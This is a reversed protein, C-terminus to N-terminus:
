LETKHAQEAEEKNSYGLVDNRGGKEVSDWELPAVVEFLESQGLVSGDKALAQAFVTSEYGKSQFRTEFGTRKKSGILVSESIGDAPLRYFDWQNVETAGNWSVYYVTTSSDEDIGFAFAKLVPPDLPAGTFNMKYARYTVFRKSTFSAEMVMQGDSTHESLYSNDSWAAFVNGTPLYQFNGRLKSLKEDPRTWRHLVTAVKATKNLQIELRSSINSTQAYTDAGNDLLSITEIDDYCKSEIWRADHQRSFNFGQLEFDSKSGRLRSNPADGGLRWLISGNKSIKYITNSFRSSVLYEGESNKAVSNGHFWNWADPYPGFIHDPEATSETLSVDPYAWWEFNIHGSLIEKEVFGMNMIWGHSVTRNPFASLDVYEPRNMLYLAATGNNVLHFEHMNFTPSYGPARITNTIRYSNDLIMAHGTSDNKYKVLITSLYDTGNFNWARFDCANQNDMM